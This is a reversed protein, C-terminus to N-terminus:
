NNTSLIYNVNKSYLMYKKCSHFTTKLVDQKREVSISGIKKGHCLFFAKQIQHTHTYSHTHLLPTRSPHPHPHQILWTSPIHHSFARHSMITESVYTCSTAEGSKVYVPILKIRYHTLSCGVNFQLEKNKTQTPTRRVSDQGPTESSMQFDFDPM